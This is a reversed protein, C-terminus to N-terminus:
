LSVKAKERYYWARSYAHAREPNALYNRRGNSYRCTRCIRTGQPNVYTNELTFEHGHKCHTQMEKGNRARGKRHMDRINDQQSGVFLHDVNVCPRNDCHHLM